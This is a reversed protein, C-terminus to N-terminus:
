KAKERGTQRERWTDEKTRLMYLHSDQLNVAGHPAPTGLTPGMARRAAAGTGVRGGVLQTAQSWGDGGATLFPPSHSVLAGGSRLTQSSYGSPEKSTDGSM